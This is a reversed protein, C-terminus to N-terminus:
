GGLRWIVPCGVVSARPPRTQTAEIPEGLMEVRLSRFKLVITDDASWGPLHQWAGSRVAAQSSPGVSRRAISAVREFPQCMARSTLRAYIRATNPRCTGSACIMFTSPTLRVIIQRMRAAYKSPLKPWATTSMCRGPLGRRYWVSTSARIVANAQEAGGAPAFRHVSSSNCRAARACGAIASILWWVM